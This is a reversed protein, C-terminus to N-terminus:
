NQDILNFFFVSLANFFTSQGMENEYDTYQPKM